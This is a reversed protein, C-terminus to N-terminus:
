ESRLYPVPKAQLTRWTGLAGFLLILGLSFGLAQAVALWSFVFDLDMVQTVVVWAVLSGLLVALSATVTALLGYELGHATLIRRRTAGLVKIIVSQHVRRHQAAALAGALVIAGALLTVGGALRVAVMIREFVSNFANIADKVRIATVAPFTQSLARSLAAERKLTTGQPLRVTALVNYPAGSLTNPSFLMVFNIALSEWKLERLSAIKATVDRGLVNVTVTDGLKLGLQKALDREFSVLPPGAYGKPWWAGEVVKSGEPVADAFSLGRDGRLVWQAGPDVKVQDTPRGALRVLRGRLMPATRVVTGPTEKAVLTEFAAVQGKNIDLVYYDPAREPVENNIAKLLSADALAVAVLLSLGAGLSLVVARTLGGPAGLNGIALAAEPMRPRPLRRAVQTVAEGLGIFVLFTIGLGICFYAAIWKSDSAAIALAMLALAALATMLMVRARPRTRDDAVQDRFLVSGRVLEARGLPWLTFVLAVLFGYAAALLVTGWSPAFVLKIPLVTGLAGVLTFPVVYGVLLGLVVGIGAIAMTQLLHIKFIMASTAGLSKMTGIIKRRRDIYSSVANAVGVGGVLLATLGILSLFQAVREVTQTVMPSPNLRDRIIFGAEPLAAKLQARFAKLGAAAEGAGDALSLAYRWRIISGPQVLGTGRLDPLSMIVRPGYTLRDAVKDTERTITAAIKLKSRGVQLEDGVKLKLQELLLPDVAVGEKLATQLAVGTSLDVAGARPYAPGVAKIEVLMQASGDPRRGMSRMTAFAAVEGQRDMWAREQPTAERHVRSLRVDGGLIERGQQSLANRLADSLAGVSTIVMVGLAVCAIFVYFGRVGGRLERLALSVLRPVALRPVSALPRKLADISM